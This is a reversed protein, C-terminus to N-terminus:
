DERGDPHCRHCSPTDYRYGPTRRHEDDMEGRRHAHCDTCTFAGPDRPDDHCDACAIGRHKGRDLPFRHRFVAGEFRDTDHCAECTRPYGVRHHDPSRTALYQAEHCDVCARPSRAERAPRRISHPSDVPHCISCSPRRHAGDLPFAAPHRFESVEAFPREQGHCSGCDPGHGGAHPDDHCTACTQSMSEYRRKGGPVVAAASLAHCRSCELGVHRGELRFDAGPHDYGAVGGEFGALM